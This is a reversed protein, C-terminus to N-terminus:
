CMRSEAPSWRQVSPSAAAPYSPVEEIASSPVARSVAPLSRRATTAQLFRGGSLVDEIATASLITGSASGGSSVFQVGRSLTADVALGGSLVFQRAANQGGFAMTRSTVGGAYIYEDCFNNLTTDSTVGGSFVNVVANSIATTSVGTGYFDAVDGSHLILISVTTGSSITINAM